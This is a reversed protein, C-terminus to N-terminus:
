NHAPPPGYRQTLQSPGSSQRAVWAGNSSRCNHFGLQIGGGRSTMARTIGPDHVPEDDRGCVIRASPGSLFPCDSGAVLVELSSM